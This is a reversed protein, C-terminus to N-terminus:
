TWVASRGLQVFRGARVMFGLAEVAKAIQDRRNSYAAEMPLYEDDIAQDVLVERLEHLTGAVVYGAVISARARGFEWSMVSTIRVLRWKVELKQLTLTQTWSVFDSYNRLDGM